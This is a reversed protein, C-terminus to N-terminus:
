PAPAPGGNGRGTGTGHGSQNGSGHGHSSGSNNGKGHDDRHGVGNTQGTTSANSNDSPSPSPTATPTPTSGADSPAAGTGAGPHADANTDLWPVDAAPAVLHVIAGLASGVASRVEPSAAAAGTGLALAGVVFIGTIVATRTRAPARRPARSPNLLAALEASPMPRVATSDRELETLLERLVPDGPLGSEALLADILESM